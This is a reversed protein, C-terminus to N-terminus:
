DRPVYRLLLCQCPIYMRSTQVTEEVEPSKLPVTAIRVTLGGFVPVERGPTLRATDFVMSVLIAKRMLSFRKSPSSGNSILLIVFGDRSVGELDGHVMGNDHLYGLGRTVGVIQLGIFASGSQSHIRCVLGLRDAEPYKALYQSVNGNVM